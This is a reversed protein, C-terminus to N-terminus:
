CTALVHGGGLRRAALACGVLASGGRLGRAPLARGVAMAVAWGICLLAVRAVARGVGM